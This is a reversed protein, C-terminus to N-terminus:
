ACAPRSNRQSVDCVVVAHAHRANYMSCLAPIGPASCDIGCAFSCQGPPPVIRYTPPFYPRRWQCPLSSPRREITQFNISSPAREHHTGGLNTEEKSKEQPAIKRCLHKVPALLAIIFFTSPVPARMVCARARRSWVQAHEKERTALMRAPACLGCQIGM